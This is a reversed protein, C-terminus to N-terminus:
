RGGRGGARRFQGSRTAGRQRAGPTSGSGGGPRTAPLQGPVAPRTGAGTGRGTSRTWGQTDLTRPWETGGDQAFALFGAAAAAFSVALGAVRFRGPQGRLPSRTRVHPDAM